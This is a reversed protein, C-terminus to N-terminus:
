KSSITEKQEQIVDWKGRADVLLLCESPPACQTTHREKNKLSYFSGTNLRHEVGNLTVVLTGALVTVHSDATHHHLPVSVGANFKHLAHHNGKAPDGEVVAMSIGPVPSAEWKLNKAEMFVSQMKAAQAVTSMAIVSVSYTFLSKFTM